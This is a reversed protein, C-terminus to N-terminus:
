GTGTRNHPDIRAMAMDDTGQPMAPLAPMRARMARSAREFGERVTPSTGRAHHAKVASNTRVELTQDRVEARQSGHRWRKGTSPVPGPAHVRRGGNRRDQESARRVDDLNPVSGPPPGTLPKPPNVRRGNGQGQIPNTDRAAGHRGANVSAFPLVALSTLVLAFCVCLSTWRVLRQHLRRSLNM